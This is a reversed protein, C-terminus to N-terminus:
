DIFEIRNLSAIQDYIDDVIEKISRNNISIVLDAAEKYLHEREELMENIIQQKNKGQLLPRTKDDKINKYIQEPSGRLYVLISTSQLICINDKSKIIGGGTAIVQHQGKAIKEIIRKEVKRFYSEGAHAFIASISKGEQKEIEKDSDIFPYTLLIALNKGITTKGCGMFGILAINSKKM